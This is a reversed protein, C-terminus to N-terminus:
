YRLIAAMPRNGPVRQQPMTHVRGAHVITQLAAANILDEDGPRAVQHTRARDSAEDFNGMAQANEAVFLHMVRGDYAAKVLQNVGAAAFEGGQKDHQAVLQEVEAQYMKELCQLARSHMEGGKLGNPAGHVGDPCTNPWTNVKQYVALEYEVACAVLPTKEQGKLSEVVGKNVAQFFHLLYEDKDEKDTSTSSMVGKMAGVSPGASSRNESTHDPKAQDLFKSLSRPIRDGVELEESSHETCRLLRVDKQSLALIYFTLEGELRKLFPRIFFNDAAIVTEELKEPLWYQRLEEESRFIALTAGHPEDELQPAITALPDILKRVVTSVVSRDNLEREAKEVAAKLRVPLQRNVGGPVNAPLLM